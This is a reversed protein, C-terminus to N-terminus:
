SFEATIEVLQAHASNLDPKFPHELLPLELGFAGSACVECGSQCCKGAGTAAGRLVKIRQGGPIRRQRMGRLVEIGNGAMAWATM